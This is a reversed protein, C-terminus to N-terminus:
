SFLEELTDIPTYNTVTITINILAGDKYAVYCGQHITVGQYVTTIEVRRFDVNGLKVDDHESFEATMNLAERLSDIEEVSQRLYEDLDLESTLSYMININNGTSDDIAVLDCFTDGWSEPDIADVSESNFVSAIEEVTSYRWDSPKTFTISFYDNEYVDDLYTGRLDDITPAAAPEGDSSESEVADSDNELVDSSTDGCSCLGLLMLLAIIVAFLKKM